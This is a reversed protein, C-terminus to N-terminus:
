SGRRSTTVAWNRMDPPARAKIEQAFVEDDLAKITMKGVIDDAQTQYSRNVIDRKRKYALVASATSDGYRKSALEAPAIDSGDVTSLAQHIKSVHGGVAGRMVHAPDQVLCAELAPDGRFLNSKLGMAM